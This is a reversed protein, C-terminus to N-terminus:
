VESVWPNMDHFLQPFIEVKIEKFLSDEENRRTDEKPVENPHINSSRMRKSNQRHGKVM